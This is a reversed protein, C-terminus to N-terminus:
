CLVALEVATLCSSHLSDGGVVVMRDGPLVVVISYRRATDMCGIKVWEGNYLQFIDRTTTHGSEGGVTVMAKSLTCLTLNRVPPKSLLLLWASKPPPQETPTGTNLLISYTQGAANM